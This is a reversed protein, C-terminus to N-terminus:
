QYAVMGRPNEEMPCPNHCAIGHEHHKGWNDGVEVDAKAAFVCDERTGFLPWTQQMIPMVEGVHDRVHKKLVDFTFSDHTMTLLKSDGVKVANLEPLVKRAMLAVDSAPEFAVAVAPDAVKWEDTRFNRAFAFFRLIYGFSNVLCKDETAIQIQSEQWRQIGRWRGFYAGMMHLAESITLGYIEATKKAQGYYDWMHTARKACYRADKIAGEFKVYTTRADKPDCGYIISANLSHIDAGDWIAHLLDYDEALWATRYLEVQSWDYSVLVRTSPDESVFIRRDIPKINQANGPGTRAKDDEQEDLGSAVRQNETLHGSYVFNARPAGDDGLRFEMSLINSLRHSLSQMQVRWDLVEIDPHRRQLTEIAKDDVKPELKKPTRGAPRLSMAEPDFLLWRWHNDNTAQFTKGVRKRVGKGITLRRRIGRVTARREDSADYVAKCSDCVVRKTLGKYDPHTICQVNGRVSSSVEKDLEGQVQTVANEILECRKRHYRKTFSRISANLIGKRQLAEDRLRDREIEDVPFGREEMDILVRGSPAVLDWYLYFMDEQMLLRKLPPWLCHTYIVDLACYLRPYLTPHIVPFAANLFRRTTKDESHKWMPVFDMVRACCTTLASWRRKKAESFPPWLLASAQITDVVHGNVRIGNARLAMDDFAFNHGIKMVEPDAMLPRLIEIFSHTWPFVMATSPDVSIGCLDIQFRNDRPTELDLCVTKAGSIYDKMMSPTPTLYLADESPRVPGHEQDSWRQGRQIATYISAWFQPLGHMAFSPHLTAVVSHCKPPLAIM